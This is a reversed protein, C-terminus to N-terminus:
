LVQRYTIKNMDRCNVYAVQKTEHNFYTFGSDEGALCSSLRVFGMGLLEKESAKWNAVLTKQEEPTRM